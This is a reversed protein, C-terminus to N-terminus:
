LNGGRPHSFLVTANCLQMAVLANHVPFRSKNINQYDSYDNFDDYVNYDNFDNYDNNDKYVNYDNYDNYDNDSIM